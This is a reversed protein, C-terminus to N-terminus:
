YATEDWFMTIGQYYDMAVDRSYATVIKYATYNPDRVYFTTRTTTSDFGSIVVMHGVPNGTDNYSGSFGALVPKGQQLLAITASSSLQATSYTTNIHFISSLITRADNM